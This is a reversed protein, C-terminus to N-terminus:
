DTWPNITQLGEHLFDEVNRTIINYDYRLAIAAIQLDALAHNKGKRWSAAAIQGCIEASSTDFPLIRGSFNRNFLTRTAGCFNRKRAGEPLRLCGYWIEQVTIATTFTDSEDYEALRALVRANGESKQLESIVNTDLIIM